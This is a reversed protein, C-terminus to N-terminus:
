RLGEAVFDRAQSAIIRHATANPHADDPAVWLRIPETESEFAPTVDLYEIGREALFGTIKMHVSGFLYPNVQHLEPLLVVQFRIGHGACFDRLEILALQALEWGAAPPEYLGVYYDYFTDGREATLQKLRSWVLTILPSSGLWAWNSYPQQVEADNIFYFLTVLQPHYRLGREFFLNASQVTNYNGTGFNLIEIRDDKRSLEQEILYEFTDESAVGWGFTLSDGLFVARKVGAADPDYERDRLGDTNITVPVGMLRAEESPRHVHSIKPNASAMKVEAAYRSMEVDYDINHSFYWRTAVEYAILVVGVSGAIIVVRTAIERGTM